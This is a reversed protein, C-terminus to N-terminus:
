KRRRWAFLLLGLGATALLVLTGPEPITPYEAIIIPANPDAGTGGNYILYKTLTLNTCVPLPPNFTWDVKTNGLPIVYTWIGFWNSASFSWQNEGGPGTPNWTWGPTLIEEHYDYWAPATGDPGGGVHLNETLTYITGAVAPDLLTLTKIWPGADPDYYVDQNGGGYPDEVVWGDGEPEYESGASTGSGDSAPIGLVAAQLPAAQGFALALAFVLVMTLWLHWRTM